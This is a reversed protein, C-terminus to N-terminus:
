GGPQRELRLRARPHQAGAWETKYPEDGRLFDWATCTTFSAKLAEYLLTRGLGLPAHAPDFASMYAYIRSRYVMAFILATIESGFRLVFFRTAGIQGMEKGVARLFPASRNAEVMGLEGQAEWRKTHLALVTKMLEESYGDVIEFQLPAIKEARERYRRLNRRLEKGRCAWFEEFRSTFAIDNVPLAEKSVAGRLKFLPHNPSLDTWDAVEWESYNSLQGEVEQVFTTESGPSILPDLYDTIGTGLLTLQRKGEWDLLFCPLVARLAGGERFTLVHLSGSGFYQWWTLLWEPLHFPTSAPHSNVFQSWESRFGQLAKGSDIRDVQM